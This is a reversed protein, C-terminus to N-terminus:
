IVCVKKLELDRIRTLFRLGNDTIKSNNQILSFSELWIMNRIGNDTINMATPGLCLSRDFIKPSVLAFYNLVRDSKFRNDRNNYKLFIFKKSRERWEKNVCGLMFLEVDNEKQDDIALLFELIIKWM